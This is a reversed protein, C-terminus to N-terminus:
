SAVSLLAVEAGNLEKGVADALADLDAPLIVGDELVLSKYARRDRSRALNKRLCAHCIEGIVTRM